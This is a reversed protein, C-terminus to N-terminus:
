QVKSKYESYFAAYMGNARLLEDHTGYEAVKGHAIMYIIDAGEITSLRHAVVVTTRGKKLTELATQVKKESINDLASTAEDLLLIPANKLIARAIAIRQKQGGSLKAGKQGINTRYQNDLKMIFEHAAALKSAEIIDQETADLKGYRINEIVTDDFLMVDQGVMAISDRLYLIPIDKIGCGGITITGGTVDYFRELLKLITTKGQGSGGVLAVTKYEPIFLSLDQLVTSDQNYNFSVNRFEIDYHKLHAICAEKKSTIKPKEDMMQFIRSGISVSIHLSNNFQSVSKLPRYLMLLATIFSFFAGPSTNGKIVNYGGYWIVIAIAVGGVSEMLPSPISDILTCKKHLLLLRDVILRARSVEYEERCYSKVVDINQFSEDLQVAFSSLSDQITDTIKRVRKGLMMILKFSLPFVIFAAVSLYVNQYVMVCILGVVTMVDCTMNNLMDCICTHLTNIENTFRSILNGSPHKHFFDVDSNIIHAYLDLQIQMKIGQGILKMLVTQCFTAIGKILTVAIVALPILLLMKLNKQLFIEDLAPKMLWASIATTFAVVVMCSIVVAIYRRQSKIYMRFLRAVILRTNIGANIADPRTNDCIDYNLHSM